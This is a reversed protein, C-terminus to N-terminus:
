ILEQLKGDFETKKLQENYFPMGILKFEKNEFVTDLKHEKEIQKLFDEKWQDTAILQQGKPEIFLQYIIPKSKEKEKVFLVFDPELPRGDDFSYL